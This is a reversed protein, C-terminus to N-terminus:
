NQKHASNDKKFFFIDTKYKEVIMMYARPQIPSYKVASPVTKLGRLIFFIYM